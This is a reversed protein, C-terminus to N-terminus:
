SFGWGILRWLALQAVLVLTGVALGAYQLREAASWWHRTWGAVALVVAAGGAVTLALPLHFALRQLGPLELWGLFGSDVIGPM